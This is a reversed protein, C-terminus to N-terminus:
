VRGKKPWIGSKGPSLVGNPDLADKLTEHLRMLAGNNWNYTKSIQDMFALHTRYEGYGAEAAERVLVSFLDYARKREDVDNHNFSLCAIHHMDRWGVVFEGIYDFGFEHSRDRIMTFQRMADEGTPPSIPSFDIHGGGGYWNAINFETMNPIGRMLKSRYAMAVDDKRDAETYFKAGPIQLLAGKITELQIDMIEKPGYVAGYFNWVGINMDNVMAKLKSEPMPGKGSYYKSRNFQCGAEWTAYATVAANPILQALKLPRLLETLRYIDDEKQFTFMFPTCGPPEPMLWIGLKTVIGMNSQTFLGDVYPGYGWKFLQWSSNGPLAGMGTRVMEGNALVVEMGCTMMFHEGYPTYGVGHELTNGVVSGWGPAACDIWLKLGREQIYRYLDFYSVGPELLAYGFKENVEIIRNLRKLDLIIAGNLRPAPGGYAFNRGGGITWLPLKYDNAVKVIKQVQEATDPSVAAGARFDDDGLPSWPDRYRTLQEDTEFVWADGVISRFEQLANKFNTASVHPPLYKKTM